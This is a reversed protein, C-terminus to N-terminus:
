LYNSNGGSLIVVLGVGKCRIYVGILGLFIYVVILWIKGVM